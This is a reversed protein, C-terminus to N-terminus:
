YGIDKPGGGRICIRIEHFLSNGWLLNMPYAINHDIADLQKTRFNFLVIEPLFESKRFPFVRQHRKMPGGIDIVRFFELIKTQNEFLHAAFNWNYERDM